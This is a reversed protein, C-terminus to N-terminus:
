RMKKRVYAIENRIMPVKEKEIDVEIIIPVALSFVPEIKERVGRSSSFVFNHEARGATETANLHVCSIKEGLVDLFEKPGIGNAMGHNVDFCFGFGPNKELFARIEGPKQWGKHREGDSLNEICAPLGLNKLASFEKVKDPHFTIHNLGALKAIRRIKRFVKETEANKGYDMIPAHMSNSKMKNMFELSREDPEFKQFGETDAFCLEIGDILGSFKEEALHLGELRSGVTRWFCGTSLCLTMNLDDAGFCKLPKNKAQIQAALWLM